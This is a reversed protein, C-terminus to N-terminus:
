SHYLPSKVNLADLLKPINHMAAPHKQKFLWYWIMVINVRLTDANPKPALVRISCYSIKWIVSNWPIQLRPPFLFPYVCQRCSVPIVALLPSLRKKGMWFVKGRWLKTCFLFSNMESFNNVLENEFSGTYFTIYLSITKNPCMWNM